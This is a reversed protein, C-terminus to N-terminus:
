MMQEMAEMALADPMDACAAMLAVQDADMDGEETEGAGEASAGDPEAEGAEVMARDDAALAERLQAMAEDQAEPEMATVEACTLTTPDVDEQAPATQPLALLVGLIMAHRSPRM